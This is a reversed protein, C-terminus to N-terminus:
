VSYSKFSSLWCKACLQYHTTLQSIVHQNAKKSRIQKGIQQRTHGDRISGSNELKPYAKREFDNESNKQKLKSINQFPM